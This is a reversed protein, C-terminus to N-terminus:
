VVSKRDLKKASETINKDLTDPSQYFLQPQRLAANVFENKEVKFKKVSETINKDLTEYSLCFLQPQRLAANVFENKKSEM